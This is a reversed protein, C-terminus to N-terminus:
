LKEKTLRMVWIFLRPHIKILLRKTKTRIGMDDALNGTLPKSINAVMEARYERWEPMDATRCLFYMCLSVYQNFAAPVCDPYFKKYFELREETSRIWDYMRLQFGSRMYSGESLYYFYYPRSTCTVRQAKHICQFLMQLDECMIGTKFRLGEFVEAAYLKDWLSNRIHVSKVFEMQAEERSITFNERPEVPFREKIEGDTGISLVGCCAIQAQQEVMQNYLAEYMEPDIWDDSDVFGIYEGTVADLGANRADSVGGNKKHIVRIRSDEAALKDCIEGGRDPSGDDVLIIELNRYTQNQISKVCKELYAEVKYVPVIVSILPYEM